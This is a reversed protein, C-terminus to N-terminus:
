EILESDTLVVDGVIDDHPWLHTANKNFPLGTLKGNENIVLVRGPHKPPYVIEVYGGVLEQLEELTWTEGKPEILPAEDNAKLHYSSHLSEEECKHDDDMHHSAGCHVCLAYDNPEM